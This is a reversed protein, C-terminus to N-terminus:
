EPAFSTECETSACGITDASSKTVAIEHSQRVVRSTGTPPESAGDESLILERTRTAVAAAGAM